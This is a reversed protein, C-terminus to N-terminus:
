TSKSLLEQELEDAQENFHLHRLVQLIKEKTPPPEIQRLWVKIMEKFCARVDKDNKAAIAELSYPDVGLHIAIDEWKPSLPICLTTYIVYFHPKMRLNEVTTTSKPPPFPALSGFQKSVDFSVDAEAQEDETKMGKVHICFTARQQTPSHATLTIHPPYVKMKYQLEMDDHLDAPHRKRKSWFDVKSAFIQM